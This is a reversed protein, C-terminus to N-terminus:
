KEVPPFSEKGSPDFSGHVIHVDPSIKIDIFQKERGQFIKDQFRGSGKFYAVQKTKQPMQFSEHAKQIVTDIGKDFLGTQSGKIRIDRFGSPDRGVPLVIVETFFEFPVM